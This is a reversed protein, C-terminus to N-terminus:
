RGINWRGRIPKRSDRQYSEKRAGVFEVEIARYKLQATGFTKFIAVHAGKGLKKGLAQAMTIGSGVVVVDIDKSPRQLFIDRVFGGVAYCELGLDDATDSIESFIDDIFHRKLEEQTLQM